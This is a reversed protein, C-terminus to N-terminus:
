GNKQEAQEKAIQSLREIEEDIEKIMATREQEAIGDDPLLSIAEEIDQDTLAFVALRWIREEEFLRRLQKEDFPDTHSHRHNDFHQMLFRNLVDQRRARLSAKVYKSMEEKTKPAKLIEAKQEHLESVKAVLGEYEKEIQDIKRAKITDIDRNIDKQRLKDAKRVAAIGERKINLM